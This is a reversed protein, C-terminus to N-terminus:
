GISAKAIHGGDTPPLWKDVEFRDENPKTGTNNAYTKVIEFTDSDFSVSGHLCAEAVKPSELRMRAYNKKTWSLVALRLPSESKRFDKDRGDYFGLVNLCYGLYRAGKFNFWKDMRQVEDFIIRSVRKLLWKRTENEDYGKLETWVTNHQVEWCTWDPKTVTSASFVLKAMLDALREHIGKPYIDSPKLKSHIPVNKEHLLKIVKDVFAVAVQLRKFEDLKYFSGDAGDM